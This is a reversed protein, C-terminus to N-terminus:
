DREVSRSVDPDRVFHSLVFAIYVLDAFDPVRWRSHCPECVSVLQVAAYRTLAYRERKRAIPYPSHLSILHFVVFRDAGTASTYIVLTEHLPNRRSASHLPETHITELM